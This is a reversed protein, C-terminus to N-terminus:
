SPGSVALSCVILCILSCHNGHKHFGYKSRHNEVYKVRSRLYFCLGEKGLDPNQCNPGWEQVAM